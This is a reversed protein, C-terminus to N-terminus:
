IILPLVSQGKWPSPMNLWKTAITHYYSRLDTTFHLDNGQLSDLKPATGILGNIAGGNVRGGLAFHAAATGHDTGASANEKVRRGFESYSIILVNDWLGAQKMAKSFIALGEALQKLLNEHIKNQAKHTDFSGIEIKYVPITLGSLIVQTLTELQKGFKTNPFDTRVTTTHALQQVVTQANHFVNNQVKLVHSLAKNSSERNNARLKKSLRIFSKKDTMQLTNLHNGQLPGADSGIIVGQLPKNTLHNQQQYLQAIWGQDLYEEAQSATEWIEISRFHSRNPNAYGIGQVWALDNSKWFPLLAKMGPNMAFGNGLKIAQDPKIAITPRLRYYYDDEIPILTNLADNGGKLEVMILVKDRPYAFASLAPKISMLPSAALLQMFHRRSIPTM